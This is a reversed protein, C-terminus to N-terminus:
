ESIFLPHAPPHFTWVVFLVALTVVVLATAIRFVAGSLKLRSVTLKYAAYSGAAIVAFTIAIDLVVIHDTTFLRYLKHLLLASVPMAVLVVAHSFLFNPYRKGAAFYMVTYWILAPCFFLKTHEWLSENVPSMAATVTNPMLDHLFHWFVALAFIVFVGAISFKKLTKERM